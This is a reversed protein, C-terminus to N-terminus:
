NYPILDDVDARGINLNRIQKALKKDKFVEEAIFIANHIWWAKKIDTLKEVASCAAKYLGYATKYNAPNQM